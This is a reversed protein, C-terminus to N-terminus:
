QINQDNIRAFEMDYTAWSKNHWFFLLFYAVDRRRNDVILNGNKLIGIRIKDVNYFNFIILPVLILKSNFEFMGDVFQGYRIKTELVIGNEIMSLSIHNEDIYKLEVRSNVYNGIYAKEFFLYFLDHCNDMSCRDFKGDIATPNKTSLDERLDDNTAVKLKASCASFLLFLFLFKYVRM